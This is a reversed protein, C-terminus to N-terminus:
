RSFISSDQATGPVNLRMPVGKTLDVLFLHLGGNTDQGTLWRGDSSVVPSQFGTYGPMLETATAGIVSTCTSEDYGFSNWKMVESGHGGVHYVIREPTTSADFDPEGMTTSHLEMKGPQNSYDTWVVYPSGGHEFLLMKGNPHVQLLYTWNVGGNPWTGFFTAATQNLIGTLWKKVYVQTGDNHLTYIYAGLPDWAVGSMFCTDYQALCRLEQGGVGCVMLRYRHTSGPDDIPFAIERGDPSFSPPGISTMTPSIDDARVVCVADTGDWNSVWLGDGLADTSVYALKRKLITSAKPLQAALPVTSAVGGQGDYVTCTLQYQEQPAATVPPRWSWRGVWCQRVSDWDMRDGLPSSFSGSGAPGTCDWRCFLPDGDADTAFCEATLMGDLAVTYNSGPVSVNALTASEPKPSVEIFPPVFVPNRNGTLPSGPSGSANSTISQLAVVGPAANVLSNDVTIAGLLSVSVTSPQYVASLLNPSGATAQIQQGLVLRYQGQDHPANSYATGDPAFYLYPDSRASANWLTPDPGQGLLGQPRSTSWSPGGYRGLFVKVNGMSGNMQMVHTIKPNAEGELVQLSDAVAVTGGASPLTVAVPHGSSLAQQRLSKLFDAVQMAGARSDSRTKAGRQFGISLALLVTLLGCVALVELLSFGRRLGPWRM